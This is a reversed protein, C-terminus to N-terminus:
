IVQKRVWNALLEVAYVIVFISLVIGGIVEFNLTKAANNLLFGIGGAGVIGLVTSSRFSVDLVYLMNSLLAPLVQPTVATSIDQMRTAGAAVVGDRPGQVVEEISDAFLKAIFGFLGIALAITGTRPGLGLAAVFIVALVLEPVARVVLLFLRSARYVWPSSINHAALFAVPLALLLAIFTAAFGMAITEVLDERVGPTFWELDKPVLRWSISPLEGLKSVFDRFSIDPVIFSLIVLTAGLVGAINLRIRENTWPPTIGAAPPKDAAPREPASLAVAADDKAQKTDGLIARRAMASIAEMAIVAVVILLTVGLLEQYRLNGQFGRIQLGIGGAGVLGLLTANRFNIELRYLTIAIATPVLQSWVGTVIDQLRGAGTSLVGERPGPDIDEAADALLKGLMGISHIGIALVGPIVGIGWVRVFVIAFVLAPVARTFVITGRAVARIPAYSVINRASALALPVSLAFGIFTGAIAMFFTDVVARWIVGFDERAIVPPTMRELLNRTQPWGEVLAIISLDARRIGWVSAALWGVVIALLIARRRDWPPSLRVQDLDVGQPVVGGAAPRDTVATM